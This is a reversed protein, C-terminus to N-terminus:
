LYPMYPNLNLHSRVPRICSYARADRIVEIRVRRINIIRSVPSQTAQMRLIPINSSFFTVLSVNSSLWSYLTALM